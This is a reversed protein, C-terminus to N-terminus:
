VCTEYALKRLTPPVFNLSGHPYHRSGGILTSTLHLTTEKNINYDELTNMREEYDEKELLEKDGMMIRQQDMPIGDKEKIMSKLDVISNSGEVELTITNGRLTKVFIQM